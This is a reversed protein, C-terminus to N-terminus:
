SHDPDSEAHLLLMLQSRFSDLRHAVLQAMSDLLLVGLERDRRMVRRLDSGHTVLLMTVGNCQAGSTYHPRGLAASWGFVGGPWITEIDMSGGDYPRFRLVVEGSEVIYINLAQDGQQFVHRGAEYEQRWFIPALTALQQPALGSFISFGSLEEPRLAM